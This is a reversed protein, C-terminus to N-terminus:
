FLRFEQGSYEVIRLLHYKYQLHLFLLESLNFVNMHNDLYDSHEWYYFGNKGGVCQRLAKGVNGQGYVSIFESYFQLHFSEAYNGKPQRIEKQGEASLFHTCKCPSRLM